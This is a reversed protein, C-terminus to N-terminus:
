YIPYLEPGQEAQEPERKTIVRVARPKEVSSSGGTGDYEKLPVKTGSPLWFDVSEIAVTKRLRDVHGDFFLVNLGPEGAIPHRYSYRDWKPDHVDPDLEVPNVFARSFSSSPGATAFSGGFGARYDVDYDPSTEGQLMYRSGEVVLAKQGPRRINTFRPVHGEPTRVELFNPINVGSQGGAQQYGFYMFERITSYSNMPMVPWGNNIFSILFPAAVFNNSPCTFLALERLRLWRENRDRPLDDHGLGYHVLPTQWDWNQVPVGPTDIAFDDFGSLVSLEVGSTGPSGPIWDSFQYGYNNNAGSIDHLHTSCVVAQAQARASEISPLLISILLAIIAVVVLLEVLTFGNLKKM